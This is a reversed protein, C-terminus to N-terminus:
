GLHDLRLQKIALNIQNVNLALANKEFAKSSLMQLAERIVSTPPRKFVTEYIFGSDCLFNEPLHLSTRILETPLTDTSLSDMKLTSPVVDVDRGNFRTDLIGLM